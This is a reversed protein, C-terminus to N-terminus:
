KNNLNKFYSLYSECNKIEVENISMSFVSKSYLVTDNSYIRPNYKFEFKAVDLKNELIFEKDFLPVPLKAGKNSFYVIVTDAYSENIKNLIIYKRILNYKKGNNIKQESILKYNNFVIIPKFFYGNDSLLTDINIKKNLIQKKSDSFYGFDDTKKFIGLQFYTYENPLTDNFEGDQPFEYLVYDKYTVVYNYSVYDFYNNRDKMRMPWHKTIKFKRISDNTIYKAFSLSILMSLAFFALKTLKKNKIKKTEM